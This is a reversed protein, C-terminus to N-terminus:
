AAEGYRILNGIQEGDIGMERAVDFRLNYLEDCEFLDFASNVLALGEVSAFLNSKRAQERAAAASRILADLKELQSAAHHSLTSM